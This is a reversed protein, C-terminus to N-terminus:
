PRKAPQSAFYSRRAQVALGPRRLRLEITRWGEHEPSVPAFSVLYQHLLSEAIRSCAADVAEASAAVLFEGGTEEATKKIQPFPSREAGGYVVVHLTAGSRKIADLAAPLDQDAAQESEERAAPTSPAPTPDPHPSLAADAGRPGPGSPPRLRFPGA